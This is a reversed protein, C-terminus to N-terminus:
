KLWASIKRFSPHASDRLLSFILSESNMVHVGLSRMFDLSVSFDNQRRSNVADAIAIVQFGKELADVATQQVCVHAEVGILVLTRIHRKLIEMRFKVDGFCSFSTKDYIPWETKFLGSLEPITRGLGNPYQETVIVPINLESATNLLIKQWAIIKGAEATNMSALLKEQMDILIFATDDPSPYSYSHM